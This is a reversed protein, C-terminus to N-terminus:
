PDNTPTTWARIKPEGESITISVWPFAQALIECKIGSTFSKGSPEQVANVQFLTLYHKLFNNNM